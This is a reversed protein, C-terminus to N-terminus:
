CWPAQTPRGALSALALLRPDPDVCNGASSRVPTTRDTAGNASGIKKSAGPIDPKVRGTDLDLLRPSAKAQTHRRLNLDQNGLEVIHEAHRDLGDDAVIVFSRTATFFELPLNSHCSIM